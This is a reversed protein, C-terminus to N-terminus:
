EDMEFGREVAEAIVHEIPWLRTEQLYKVEEETQPELWAVDGAGYYVVKM